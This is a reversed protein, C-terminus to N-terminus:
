GGDGRKNQSARGCKGRRLATWTAAAAASEFWRGALSHSARVPGNAARARAQVNWSGVCAACASESYQVYFGKVTAFIKSSILPSTPRTPFPTRVGSGCREFPLRQIAVHQGATRMTLRCTCCLVRRGAGPVRFWTYVVQAVVAVVQQLWEQLTCANLEKLVYEHGEFSCSCTVHWADRARRGRVQRHKGCVRAFPEPQLRNTRQQKLPCPCWTSFVGQRRATM